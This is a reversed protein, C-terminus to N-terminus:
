QERTAAEAEEAADVDPHTVPEAAPTGTPTGTTPEEAAAVPEPWVVYLPTEQRSGEGHSGKAQALANGEWYRPGAAVM